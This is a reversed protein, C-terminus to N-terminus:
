VIKGGSVIRPAYFSGRREVKKDIASVNNLLDFVNGTFMVGKIPTREGNRVIYGMDVTLSFDGSVPNATHEGFVRSVVFGDFGELDDEGAEVVVNSSGIHPMTRFDRVANGTSEMGLFSAYTHDLLFSRVVGGEVLVTRRGPIGEGDFPYSGVGGPITSDDIITIGEPGVEEGPKRFRSRGYYVADGYLNELFLSVLAQVVDVDLMLEGEYKVGSIALYSEDALSLARKITGEAEGWGDLSRYSQAWYGDGSKGDKRVAYASLSLATGEDELSIGNSNMLGYKVYALGMSGSLTYEHSPKLEVMMGAYEGALSHAEEFPIEEIRRDYLGDVKKVGDPEPLGRFPVNGVKALKITREVFKRLTEESHSLGTIYSFGARGDVGVRLGVGSFFKRQSRELTEREIRFSGSRGSEWYLEWEVNKGELIRVLKELM